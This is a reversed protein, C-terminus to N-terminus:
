SGSSFGRGGLGGSLGGRLGTFSRRSDWSLRVFRNVSRQLATQFLCEIGDRLEGHGCRGGDSGSCIAQVLRQADQDAEGAAGEGEAGADDGFEAVGEDVANGSEHLVGVRLPVGGSEGPDHHNGDDDCIDSRLM